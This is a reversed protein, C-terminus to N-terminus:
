ASEETLRKMTEIAQVVHQLTEAAAPSRAGNGSDFLRDVRGTRDWLISENCVQTEDFLATDRVCRFYQIRHEPIDGGEKIGTYDAVLKEMPGNIRCDYGMVTNRSNPEDAECCWRLRSIVDAAPRLRTRKESSPAASSLMKTERQKRFVKPQIIHSTIGRSCMFLLWTEIHLQISARKRVDLDGMIHVNAQSCEAAKGTRNLRLSTRKEAVLLWTRPGQLLNKGKRLLM